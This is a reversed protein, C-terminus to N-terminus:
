EKQFVRVYDVKMQQNFVTTENPNGPWNGGVAVNFIFFFEQHFETMHAPTIDIVGYQHDNVFWRIEDEDWTISFVHYEDAYTGQPLKRSYGALVHGNNDWHLTGHVTNERGNGGIMEMIDIEGCKPWGITAIDNGLMWLAPWIGQGVPLLARIDIRGYKFSQKGQTKIRSSTYNRGGFNENRAEIILTGDEVWTNERRYYQLENNGWGCLNPCGDGIEYVWDDTNLATGDFEDNWILSYGDYELPTSYGEDISVPDDDKIEVMRMASLYRGTVGYARIFIQYTGPEIFSYEFRGSQNEEVPDDVEGVYFGYSVAGDARAEIIVTKKFEDSYSIEIILNTPDDPLGTEAEDQCASILLTLILLLSIRTQMASKLTM